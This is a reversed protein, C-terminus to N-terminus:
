KECALKELRFVLILGALALGCALFFMGDIKAPLINQERLIYLKEHIIQTQLVEKWPWIKRMAGLMLGTLMAITINYYYKLLYNLLRSFGAIGVACGTAFILIIILNNIDLPNRLAGTIYEYKGMILLLFAGSLGPLIMACIAIMGSLFVFWWSEPTSVPIMGVLFYGTATGTFFAIGGSGRWNKVEKVLIIISASILGFFLAWTPIPHVQLLFNTFHALSLIAIGIGLMLSILFRLHVTSVAQKISLRFLQRIFELNVSQIADLLNQYIGTLLAVTGGSVGPIIDATGMCLGKLALIFAEKINKPGASNLFAEHWSIDKKHKKM